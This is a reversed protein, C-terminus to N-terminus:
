YSRFILFRLATCRMSHLCSRCRGHWGMQQDRRAVAYIARRIADELIILAPRYIEQKEVPISLYITDYHGPMPPLVRSSVCIRLSIPSASSLHLPISTWAEPWGYRTARIPRCRWGRRQSYTAAPSQAHSDTSSASVHISSSPISPTRKVEEEVAQLEGGKSMDAARIRDVVWGMDRWTIAAFHILCAILDGAVVKFFHWHRLPGGTGGENARYDGLIPLALTNIPLALTEQKSLSRTVPIIAGAPQGPAQL